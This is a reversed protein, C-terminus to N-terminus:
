RLTGCGPRLGVRRRAVFLAEALFLDADEEYGGNRPVASM